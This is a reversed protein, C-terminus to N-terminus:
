IYIKNIQRDVKPSVLEYLFGHEEMLPVYYKTIVGGTINADM